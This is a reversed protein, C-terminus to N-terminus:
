YLVYQIAPDIIDNAYCWVGGGEPLDYDTCIPLGDAISWVIWDAGEQQIEFNDPYKICFSRWTMGETIEYSIGIIIVTLLKKMEVFLVGDDDLNFQTIPKDILDEYKGSTAVTALGSVNEASAAINYEINNILLKKINAM